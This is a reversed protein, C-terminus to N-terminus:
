NLKTSLEAAKQELEDRAATIRKRAEQSAGGASDRMQALREGLAIRRSRVDGIAAEAQERAKWAKAAVSTQLRELYTDWSHLEAEVAAAFTAWDDSADAALSHEAVDLRTKLQGLKEEVEDPARRVAARVAAEAEHLADLHRRIRPAGAQAHAQLQDIRRRVEALQDEITTTSMDLRRNQERVPLFARQRRQWREALRLPPEALEPRARRAGRAGAASGYGPQRRTRPLPERAGPTAAAAAVVRPGPPVAARRRRCGRVGGRHARAPRTCPGRGLVSRGGRRRPAGAARAGRGRASRGGALANAGLGALAFAAHDGFDVRRALELARRYAEVAAAGDQRREAVWAELLLGPVRFADYDIADSHRRIAAAMAAVTSVDGAHAAGTARILSSAAIGWDDGVAELTAAADQAMADAREEDGSQALALALTLQALGLQSPAAATAALSLAREGAALAADLDLEETALFCLGALLEIRLEVPSTTAAPLCRSSSSAGDRPSASPWRSTGASRESGFERDCPRARGPRVRACGLSQREGARPPTGLAAMGPGRLELRAEEALAAFYEAHAGRAAALGGSEALRELVYERVTDLMDYRAAGGTFSTSVVSKDVLAAVLYAVTAENLGHTAAVAALSALSAGGRHVALQQLLTKEDGHLLDYSWEVLEQLATRSPDSAPSDRLLAARRELISVLEALGLVNVRAAALEIALPLGDVRRAIEAALAVAEADPEFGPRAARARELFLEVATSGLPAVPARVEGAVRLAERSTAM